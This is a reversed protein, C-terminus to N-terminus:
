AKGALAEVLEQLEMYREIKQELEEETREKEESLAQLKVFDTAAEEMERSLRQSKETLEDILAEIGDYERQEKYSLRTKPRDTRPKKGKGGSGGSSNEDRGNEGPVRENRMRGAADEELMKRQRYEEYGGESQLLTGDPEFSFIRTVVRDLFHRDHSVTIVIGGFHDLYDELVRLTQLDLDNTPEDLILVNPAGMLVRLLYLRRKEGGSLKSVPTYQMNGDFLFRECMAAATILGDEARVYEAIDRVNELVTETEVLGENEQSFCSFKVTQGVEVSGSDPLLDGLIVKMLTTKGCGNPGIIGIRDSKLFLYSFDRFLVHDGYKKSVGKLEVTKGGLRSYASSIAVQREEEPKERDRLEEFRQIHAKQKTSRARAGRMMWALDQRYLAAAKREAAAAFEMREEKKQLYVAYSGEYRFVKTKDIEWITEAVEDLFYRDHTVMLIAGQFNGLWTQLWEIMEHDLHNTPEDLILLDCPTLIAAALAARKRQGGSLIVPDCDPDSIGFRQLVAKAEGETDWHAAQGTIAGTVYELVTRGPTFVPNQSLYSIRLGNRRIVKGEDPETEGAIISLLTSKGTGNVGILGIREGEAIGTTVGDFIIREGLDRGINEITLIPSGGAM